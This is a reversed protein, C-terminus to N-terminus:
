GGSGVLPFAGLASTNVMLFLAIGVALAAVWLLTVAVMLRKNFKGYCQVKTNISFITPVIWTGLVWLSSLIALGGFAAHAMAVNSLAGTGGEGVNDFAPGMIAAFSAINLIFAALMIWAHGKIKRLRMFALGAILLILITLQLALDIQAVFFSAM